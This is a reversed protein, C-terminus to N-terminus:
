FMHQSLVDPKFSNLSTSTPYTIKNVSDLIQEVKKGLGGKNSNTNITASQYNNRLKLTQLRHISQMDGTKTPMTPMMRQM